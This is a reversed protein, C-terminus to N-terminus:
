QAPGGSPRDSQRLNDASSKTEDAVGSVAESATERVQQVADQAPERMNDRMEQAAEATQEKVAEMADSAKDQVQDALQQERESAPILSAVIWGATFAVLGAALPSGQTRSRAAEPASQVVDGAKSGIEQVSEQVSSTASGIASTGTSATGMVRERARTMVSRASDVRRGVARRPDVKDSLADVDRGLNRRTQEIDRRLDETRDAM